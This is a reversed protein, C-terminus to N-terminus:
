PMSDPPGDPEGKHCLSMPPYVLMLATTLLVVHPRPVGVLPPRLHLREPDHHASVFAVAPGSGAPTRGSVRRRRASADPDRRTTGTGFVTISLATAM